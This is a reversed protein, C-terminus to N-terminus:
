NKGGSTLKLDQIIAVKVYDPLKAFEEALVIRDSKAGKFGKNFFTRLSQITNELDKFNIKEEKKKTVNKALEFIVNMSLTRLNKEPRANSVVFYKAWINPHKVNNAALRITIEKKQNSQILAISGIPAAAVSMGLLVSLVKKRFTKRKSPVKQNVLKGM